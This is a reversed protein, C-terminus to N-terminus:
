LSNIKGKLYSYLKTVDSIKIKGDSVVDSALVYVEDMTIKEKYYSYLKTIDSIRVQGNGTVDGLVSVKYTVTGTNLKISISDGTKVISSSNVKNGSKDQISVEGSANISNLLTEYTTGVKVGYIIKSDEKIKLDSNFELYEKKVLLDMSTDGITVEEYNENYFYIDSITINETVDNLGTKSKVQITGINFEGTKNSDSYLQIDGDEGDGIWISDPTFSVLELNSSLNIQASLCSVYDSSAVNGKISCTVTDGSYIEEKDCSVVINGDGSTAYSSNALIGIAVVLMVIIITGIIIYKKKDNM